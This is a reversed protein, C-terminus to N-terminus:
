EGGGVVGGFVAGGGDDCGGIEGSAGECGRACTRAFHTRPRSLGAPAPHLPHRARHPIHTDPTRAPAFLPRPLPPLRRRPRLLPLRTQHGNRHHPHLSPSLTVCNYAPVLSKQNVIHSTSAVTWEVSASHLKYLLQFQEMSPLKRALFTRSHFRHVFLGM